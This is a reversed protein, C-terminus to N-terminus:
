RRRWAFFHSLAVSQSIYLPLRERGSSDRLRLMRPAPSVLKTSRFPVSHFVDDSLKLFRLFAALLFVHQATDQIMQAWPKQNKKKDKKTM